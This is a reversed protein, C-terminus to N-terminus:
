RLSTSAPPHSSPNLMVMGIKNNIYVSDFLSTPLLGDEKREASVFAALLNTLTTQGVVLSKLKISRATASGNLTTVIRKDSATGSDLQRFLVVNPIASDLVLYANASVNPVAARVSNRNADFRSSLQFGYLAAGLEDNEEFTIMRAKYDILFNFHSLYNGGLVGRIKPNLKQLETLSTIICAIKQVTKGSFTVSDIFSYSVASQQSATTITAGENAKLQLQAALSPEVATMTSGIDFLFDYPGEGNLLVKVTILYKDTLTFEAPAAKTGAISLSPSTLIIASILLVAISIRKTM